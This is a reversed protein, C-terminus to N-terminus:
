ETRKLVIITVDDKIIKGETFQMFDNVLETLIDKASHSTSTKLLVESVRQNGFLELSRSQAETIGDTILVMADGPALNCSEIEYEADDLFGVALGGANLERVKNEARLLAFAPPHGARTFEFDGTSPDYLGAAMTVFRGQPMQPSMLKNMGFMLKDPADTNVAVMAMKTMSGIFAAPLGHGTVDAILFSLKGSETLHVDYLDGGLEELPIYAAEVEFGKGQPLDKPLLSEQIRRAEDIERKHKETLDRLHANTDYISAKNGKDAGVMKRLRLLTAAKGVISGLTAQPDVFDFRDLRQESIQSVTSKNDTIFLIPLLRTAPKSRLEICTVASNATGAEAFILLDILKTEIFESLSKDETGVYVEYGMKRLAKEIREDAQGHLLITDM